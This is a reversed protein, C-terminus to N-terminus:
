GAPQPADNISAPGGPAPPLGDPPPREKCPVVLVLLFRLLVAVAQLAATFLFTFSYGRSDALLGGLAASGAWTASAISDLSQWRARQKPPVFDMLISEELPYTCNMLGTRLLYVSVLLALMPINPERDGDPGM